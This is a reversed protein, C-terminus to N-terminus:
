RVRGDRLGVRLEGESLRLVAEDGEFRADEGTAPIEITRQMECRELDITLAAFQPAGRLKTFVVAWRGDPSHVIQQSRFEGLPVHHRALAEAGSVLMLTQRDPSPQARCNGAAARQPTVMAVPANPVGYAAVQPTQASSLPSQPPYIGSQPSQAAPYMGAQYGPQAAPTAYAGPQSETQMGPQPYTQAYPQTGPQSMASPSPGRPPLRPTTVPIAQSFAPVAVGALVACLGCRMVMSVSLCFVPNM